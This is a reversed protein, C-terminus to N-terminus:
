TRPHGPCHEGLEAALVPNLYLHLTRALDLTWSVAGQYAVELDDLGATVGVYRALAADGLEAEAGRSVNPWHDTNGVQLRALRLLGGQVWGLLEHARIREGRALVNLGFALWNLLRDLILQAEGAPDPTRAALVALHRSLQGDTDKVLMRGPRVHQPTWGEVGPLREAGVVHLEVRRLGPLLATPTGFENVVFHQVDLHDALWDRAEVQAGPTLFAWYDLDSWADAAGQPVSGYAVVHSFRAEAQLAARLRTDLALLETLASASM